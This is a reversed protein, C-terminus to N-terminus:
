EGQELVVREGEYWSSTCVILVAGLGQISSNIRQLLEEKPPATTLVSPLPAGASHASNPTAIPVVGTGNM